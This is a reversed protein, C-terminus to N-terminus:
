DDEFSFDGGHFHCSIHYRSRAGGRDANNEANQECFADETAKNTDGQMRAFAQSSVVYGVASPCSDRFTEGLVLRQSVQLSGGM